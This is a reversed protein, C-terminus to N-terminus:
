PLRPKHPVNRSRHWPSVGQEPYPKGVWKHRTEHRARKASTLALIEPASLFHGATAHDLTACMRKGGWRWGLARPLATPEGCVVRCCCSASM